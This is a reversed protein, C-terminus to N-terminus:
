SGVILDFMKSRYFWSTIGMSVTAKAKDILLQHLGICEEAEQSPVATELKRFVSTPLQQDTAALAYQDDRCCDLTRKEGHSGFLHPMEALWMSDSIMSKGKSINCCRAKPTQCSPTGPTLPSKM